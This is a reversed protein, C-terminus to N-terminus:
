HPRTLPAHERSITRADGASVRRRRLHGQRHLERRWVPGPVRGVGGHFVSRRWSSRIRDNCLALPARKAVVRQLIGYGRVVRGRGPDYVARNLPHAMAGVLSPAADPPLVTDADLTIVYKVDRLTSTDGGIASFADAAEGRLLRNFDSLKGRKREWGMWVGQQANWRRPRHLLHFEDPLAAHRENLARVGELAAALIAADGPQVEAPADTFDSLIAFHLHAERNALFQVELNELADRVDDVSGFLTPVVVVTRYEPPVGHEHLDLRSLAHPPLWITVLQNVVSAAIDLAPFFAFLLVLWWSTRAPADIVLMVAVTALWVFLAMGGLFVVNPHAHV